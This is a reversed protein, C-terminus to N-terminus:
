ASTACRCTPLGVAPTCCSACRPNGRRVLEGTVGRPALVELTRPQIALARSEGTRDALRDVLRHAVGYAALQASLALGTPGAGVVLVDTESVHEPV